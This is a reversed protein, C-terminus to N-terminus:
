RKTFKAIGRELAGILYPRLEAAAIIRDLSGVKLAREVSHIRDFEDGVEGLKESRVKAVVEALRSRAAGGAAAAKEAEVVRPDKRTRTEVERAFVVAAAPAGGIVSARAGEVAVIEIDERLTKAFVVFAGGHYRSVVCFVFPGDFNVVARGIEAGYELQLRRMSEPSGDFGSLNALVVVPRTGSASSVARAIKKSSNPFLTGGSWFEPGDAPVFELRPLPRSQIGILCVPTGGLHADWVVATEGGRLDRWRELPPHDQDAVAAMVHRIEFPKKRDPNKDASFVDGVTTFGAGGEPGHPSLRVDREAPDSTAAKRPFREGPAV